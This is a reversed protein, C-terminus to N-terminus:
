ARLQQRLHQQTASSLQTAPSLQTVSSLKAQTAYHLPTRGWRDVAEVAAGQELLLQAAAARSSASAVHLPTTGPAGFSTLDAVKPCAGPALCREAAAGGCSRRLREEADM